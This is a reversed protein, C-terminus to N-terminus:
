NGLTRIFGSSFYSFSKIIKVDFLRLGQSYCTGYGGKAFDRASIQTLYCEIVRNQTGRISLIASKNNDNNGYFDNRIKYVGGRYEIGGIRAEVYINNKDITYNFYSYSEYNYKKTIHIAGSSPINCSSIITCIVILILIRM